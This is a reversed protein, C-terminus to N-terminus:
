FNVSVGDIIKQGEDFKQQYRQFYLSLGARAQHTHHIDTVLLQTLGKDTVLQRFYVAICYTKVSKGWMLKGKKLVYSYVYM